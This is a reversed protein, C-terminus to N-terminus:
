GCTTSGRGARLDLWSQIAPFAFLATLVTLVVVLFWTSGYDRLFIRDFTFFVWAGGCLLFLPTWIVASRIVRVRASHELEAAVVEDDEHWNM